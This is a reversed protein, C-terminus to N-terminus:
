WIIAEKNTFLYLSAFEFRINLTKQEKKVGQLPLGFVHQELSTNYPMELIMRVTAVFGGWRIYDLAVNHITWLSRVICM